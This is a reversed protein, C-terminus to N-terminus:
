KQLILKNHRTRRLRYLEGAHLIWLERAQGLLEESRVVKVGAQAAGERELWEVEQKRGQEQEGEVLLEEKQKTTRM